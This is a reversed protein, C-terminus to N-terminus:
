LLYLVHRESNQVSERTQDSMKIHIAFALEHKNRKRKRLISILDQKINRSELPLVFRSKTGVTAVLVSDLLCRGHFLVLINANKHSSCDSNARQKNKRSPNERVSFIGVM